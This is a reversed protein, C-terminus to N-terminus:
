LTCSSLTIVAVSFFQVVNVKARSTDHQLLLTAARVDDRKAAVHLAPLRVRHYSTDNDILLTIVTQHGRQVAVTM